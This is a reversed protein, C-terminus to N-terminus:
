QMDYVTVKHSNSNARLTLALERQVIVASGATCCSQKVM